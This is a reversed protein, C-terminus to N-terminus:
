WTIAICLAMWEARINNAEPASGPNKLPITM